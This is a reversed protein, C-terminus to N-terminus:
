KITVGHITKFLIYVSLARSGAYFRIARLIIRDASPNTRYLMPSTVKLWLYLLLGQGEASLFRSILDLGNSYAYSLQMQVLPTRIRVQATPYIKNFRSLSCAYHQLRYSSNRFLHNWLPLHLGIHIQLEWYEKQWTLCLDVRFNVYLKTSIGSRFFAIPFKIEREMRSVFHVHVQLKM